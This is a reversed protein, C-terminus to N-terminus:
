AGREGKRPKGKRPKGERDVQWLKGSLVDMATLWGGGVCFTDLCVVHSADLVEGNKQSSHGVIATKGSKHPKPLRESLNIWRLAEAPQCDLPAKAAYNAHVFFHEEEEHYDALEKLFKRHGAPIKKLDHKSDYSDMTERGGYRFWWVLPSRDEIVALMMEEHNGLLTVVDFEEGLTLLTDIVRRSDPGRDVYDGLFVLRDKPTPAILELLGDLAAACGHIDGIAILREAM